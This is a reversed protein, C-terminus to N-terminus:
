LDDCVSMMVLHPPLIQLTGRGRLLLQMLQCTHHAVLVLWALQYVMTCGTLFLMNELEPYLMPILVLQCSLQLHIRCFWLPWLLITQLRVKLQKGIPVASEAKPVKATRWDQKSTGPASAMTGAPTALTAAAATARSGRAGGAKAAASSRRKAPQKQPIRFCVQVLETVARCLQDMCIFTYNIRMASERCLRKLILKSLKCNLRGRRGIQLLM